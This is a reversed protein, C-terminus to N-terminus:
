PVEDILVIRMELASAEAELDRAHERAAVQLVEILAKNAKIAWTGVQLTLGAKLASSEAFKRATIAENRLDQVRKFAEMPSM